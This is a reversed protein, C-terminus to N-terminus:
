SDSELQMVILSEELRNNNGWFTCNILTIAQTEWNWDVMNIISPKSM